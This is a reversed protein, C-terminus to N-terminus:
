FENKLSKVYDSKSTDWLCITCRGDKFIHKCNEYGYLRYACEPCLGKMKSKSRLFESGCEACVGIKDNRKVEEGSM